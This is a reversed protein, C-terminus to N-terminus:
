LQNTKIPIIKVFNEKLVQYKKLKTKLCDQNLVEDFMRSSLFATYIFQFVNKHM